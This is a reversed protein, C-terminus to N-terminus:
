KEGMNGKGVLKQGEGTKTETSHFAELFAGNKLSTLIWTLSSKM